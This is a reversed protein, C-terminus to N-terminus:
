NGSKGKPALRDAEIDAAIEDVVQLQRLQEPLTAHRGRWWSVIERLIAAFSLRDTVTAAAPLPALYRSPPRM